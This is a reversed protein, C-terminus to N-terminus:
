ALDCIMVQKNAISINDGKVKGFIAIALPSAESIIAVKLNNINLTGIAAAIFCLTTETQVLAGIEGIKSVKNPNIKLLKNYETNLIELQTSLMYIENQSMARATEYKDGMSSKHETNGSEQVKKIAETLAKMKQEQFSKAFQWVENKSIM